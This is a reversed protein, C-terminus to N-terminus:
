PIAFVKLSSIDTTSMMPQRPMRFAQLICSLLCHMNVRSFWHGLPLITKFRLIEMCVANVYPLHVRDEYAPLRDRGVALDLEAQAIKQVGPYRMM